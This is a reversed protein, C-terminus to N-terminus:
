TIKEFNDVGKEFTERSVNQPNSIDYDRFKPNINLGFMENVREAGEQRAVLRTNRCAIAGGQARQVEDTIMREKKQVAINPVGLWTLAENWKNQFQQALKDSIYYKVAELGVVELEIEGFGKKGVIASEFMKKKKLVQEITFRMEDPATYVPIVSCIDINVDIARSLQALQNAYYQVTKVEPIRLQNAYIPVSNSINLNANYYGSPTCVVFETPNNYIDVMGNGTYDLALYQEDKFFLIHGMQYLNLEFYRMDIEKPMNEWEILTLAINKLMEYYISFRERNILDSNLNENRPSKRRM